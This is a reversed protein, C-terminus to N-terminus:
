GKTEDIGCSNAIRGESDQPEELQSFLICIMEGFVDTMCKFFKIDIEKSAIEFRRSTDELIDLLILRMDLDSINNDTLSKNASQLLSSNTGRNLDIFLKIFVNRLKKRTEESIDEGRLVQKFLAPTTIKVINRLADVIEEPWDLGQFYILVKSILFDIFNNLIIKNEADLEENLLIPAITLIHKFMDNEHGNTRTWANYFRSMTGLLGVIAGRGLVQVEANKEPRLLM